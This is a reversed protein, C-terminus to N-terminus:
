LIDIYIYRFVESDASFIRRRLRWTRKEANRLGCSNQRCNQTKNARLRLSEGTSPQLLSPSDLVFSSNLCQRRQPTWGEMSVRLEDAIDKDSESGSVADDCVMVASSSSPRKSMVNVFRTLLSQACGFHAHNMKKKPDMRGLLAAVLAICSLVSESSRVACNATHCM